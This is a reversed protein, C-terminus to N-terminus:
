SRFANGKQDSPKRSNIKHGLQSGAYAAPIYVLTDLVAFWVPHPILILNAVGAITFIAGLILAGVTWHEKVFLIISLGAALSGLCHALLVIAFATKPLSAIFDKLDDINNPNLNESIPHISSSVSELIAVVLGGCVLGIILGVFRRRM